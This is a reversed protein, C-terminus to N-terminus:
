STVSREIEKKLNERIKRKFEQSQLRVQESVDKAIQDLEKESSERHQHEQPTQYVGVQRLNREVTGPIFPDKFVLGFVSEFISYITVARRL